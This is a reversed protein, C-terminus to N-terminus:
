LQTTIEAASKYAEIIMDTKADPYPLVKVQHFGCEKFMKIAYTPSWGCKHYDGEHGQGGFVMSPLDDNWSEEPTEAVRRCQELLNATIFVTIGGPKLIRHVETIFGRVKKWSIHEIAFHSYVGDWENSYMPLPKEFDAVQDVTSMPRIDINPRVLPRDGGGLECIRWGTKFPLM